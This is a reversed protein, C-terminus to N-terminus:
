LLEVSSYEVRFKNEASLSCRQVCEFQRLTTESWKMVGNILGAFKEVSKCM